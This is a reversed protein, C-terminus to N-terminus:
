FNKTVIKLKLRRACSRSCVRYKGDKRQAVVRRRNAIEFLKETASVANTYTANM